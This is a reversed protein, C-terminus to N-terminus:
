NLFLLSKHANQHKQATQTPSFCLWDQFSHHTIARQAHSQWPWEPRAIVHTDISSRAKAARRSYEPCAKYSLSMKFFLALKLSVLIFM